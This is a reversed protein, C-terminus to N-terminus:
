RVGQTQEDLLELVLDALEELSCPRPRYTARVTTVPRKANVRQVRERRRNM